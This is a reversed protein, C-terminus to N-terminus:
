AVAPLTIVEATEVFQSLVARIEQVFHAAMAPIGGDVQRQEVQAVVEKVVLRDIEWGRLLLLLTPASTIGYDRVAQGNEEANAAVVRLTRAARQAVEQLLPEILRCPECDDIWFDILVPTRADNVLQRFTADTV